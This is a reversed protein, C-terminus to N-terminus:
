SSIRHRDTQNHGDGRCGSSVRFERLRIREDSGHLAAIYSQSCDLYELTGHVLCAPGVPVSPPDAKSAYEFSLM